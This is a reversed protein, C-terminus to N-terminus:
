IKIVFGQGPMLELATLNLNTGANGATDVVLTGVEPLTMTVNEGEPRNFTDTGNGLNVIVLYADAPNKDEEADEDVVRREFALLNANPEGLKFQGDTFAKQTRLASLKKFLTLSTTNDDKQDQM